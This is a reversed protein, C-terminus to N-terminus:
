PGRHGRARGRHRERCADGLEQRAGDRPAAPRAAFRGGACLCLGRRPRSAAGQALDGRRHSARRVDGAHAALRSAVVAAPVLDPALKHAEGALRAAEDADKDELGMAEATLLVARWRRATAADVARSDSLKELTERAGRWDGEACQDRLLARSAWGTGPALKMAEEAYRRALGSENRRRAEIYLGRLGLLRTRPSSLLARFAATAAEDDGTLQAAQAKLLLTLPEGPALRQTEAAARSARVADGGAVAVLGRSLAEHRRAQRRMRRHAGIRRPATWLTSLLDWLLLVALILVALAVLAAMLSTEIRYGQWVLTVDGPRDALWALGWAALALLVIYALVRIM